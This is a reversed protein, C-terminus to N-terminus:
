TRHPDAWWARIMGLGVRMEFFLHNVVLFRQKNRYRIFVTDPSRTASLEYRGMGVFSRLGAARM